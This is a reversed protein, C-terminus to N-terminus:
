RDLSHLCLNTTGVESYEQDALMEGTPCGEVGPDRSVTNPM